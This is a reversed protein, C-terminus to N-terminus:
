GPKGPGARGRVSYGAPTQHPQHQHRGERCEKDHPAVAQPMGFLQILDDRVPGLELDMFFRGLPFVDAEVARQASEQHGQADPQDQEDREDNVLVQDQWGVDQRRRLRQADPPTHGLEEVQGPGEEVHPCADGEDLVQGLVPDLIGFFPM